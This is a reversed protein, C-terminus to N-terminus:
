GPRPCLGKLAAARTRIGYPVNQMQLFAKALMEKRVAGDQSPNDFEGIDIRLVSNYFDSWAGSCKRDFQGRCSSLHNGDLNVAIQNKRQACGYRRINLDDFTIGEAYLPRNSRKM